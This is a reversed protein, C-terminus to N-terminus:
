NELEAIYDTLKRIVEERPRAAEEAIRYLYEWFASVMNTEDIGFVTTPPVVSILQAGSREKVHLMIEPPVKASRIVQYWPERKLLRITNRLHQALFSASITIGPANSFDCVPMPVAGNKILAPDPLHLIETVRRGARMQERFASYSRSHLEGLRSGPNEDQLKRVAAQPMTFFSPLSQAMILDAPMREFRSYDAFFSRHSGANYIQMLPRCLSIYEAYEQELAKVAAKDTILMNLMGETANGVSDSILASDGAALFLSRHYVGDRLRPYYYPEIAGTMYLPIWKSVAELMENSNRTINHPIRIRSGTNLLHFLMAAWKRAFVPDEYLWSMEEDSYLLLSYQKGTRCLRSLFAEVANRKGENGYYFWAESSPKGMSSAAPLAESGAGADQGSPASAPEADAKRGASSSARYFGTLFNQVYDPATRSKDGLWEALLEELAEKSDPLEEGPCIVDKLADLQGPDRINRSFYGAVTTVFQPTLPISRRGRRIRSIYSPDFSIAKSLVSNRTGTLTMLYDLKNEM